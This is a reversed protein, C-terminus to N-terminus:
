AKILVNQLIPLGMAKRTVRECIMLAKKLEEKLIEAKM